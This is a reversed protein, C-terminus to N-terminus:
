RRKPLVRYRLFLENGKRRTSILEVERHQGALFGRGDMMTPAEAGGILRPTITLYIEDVLDAKLFAFHLEGGGELLLNTVGREFLDDTIAEPALTQRPLVIVEALKSFRRVRAAPAKRTTYILIETDDRKFFSSKAPLDLEHSAVVNLPHPTQGRTVRKQRLGDDRVLIPYGDHQVTGAGIIVAGSRARLVDMMYRDHRTGLTMRERRYTTIKGDVSVAMNVTVYPRTQPGRIPM